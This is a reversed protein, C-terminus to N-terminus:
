RKGPTQSPRSASVDDEQALRQMAIGLKDQDAKTKPEIAVSIVPAPFDISELIVQKQEDCLTDGTTVSKLRFACACIDGAYVADIEERKNAHMQLLRSIRERTRKGPNYVYSGSQLPVEQIFASTPSTDSSRTPCLRSLWRPFRRTMQLAACYSKMM